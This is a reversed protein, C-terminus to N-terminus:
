STEIEAKYELSHIKKSYGIIEQKLGEADPYIRMPTMGCNELDEKYEMNTLGLFDNKLSLRYLTIGSNEDKDVINSLCEQSATYSFVGRQSTMRKNSFPTTMFYIKDSSAKNSADTEEKLQKTVESALTLECVAIWVCVDTVPTQKLNNNSSLAFYLAVMVDTTWDLLDTPIGLHQMEAKIELETDTTLAHEFCSTYNLKFNEIFTKMEYDDNRHVTPLLSWNQDAHGRFLITKSPHNKRIDKVVAQLSDISEFTKQQISKSHNFTQSSTALVKNIYEDIHPQLPKLKKSKLFYDLAKETKGLGLHSAAILNYLDTGTDTELCPELHKLAKKFSQETGKGIYCMHGLYIKADIHRQIAAKEFWEYAKRYDLKVGHGSFYIVGLNYLASNYNQDASKKLWKTAITYDQEVGDGKHYSMGVNYQAEAHEQVAALYFCKFALKSNKKPGNGYLFLVGLNFFAVDYEQQASKFLWYAGKQFDQEVGCSNCYMVGINCQAICHNHEAANLFHGMAKNYDKNVKEGKLYMMGLEFQAQADSTLNISVHNIRKNIDISPHYNVGQQIQTFGIRIMSFHKIRIFTFFRNEM